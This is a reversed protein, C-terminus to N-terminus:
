ERANLHGQIAHRDDRSIRVVPGSQFTRGPGFPIRFRRRRRIRFRMLSFLEEFVLLTGVILSLVAPAIALLASIMIWRYQTLVAFFEGKIAFKWIPVTEYILRAVGAGVILLAIGFAVAGWEFRRKGDREILDRNFLQLRLVPPLDEATITFRFDKWDATGSLLLKTIFFEGSNLLPFHFEVDGATHSVTVERGDPDIHLISAELVAAGEPIHLTLPKLLGKISREGTNAILFQTETLDQVPTGRYAIKLDDRMRKAGTFLSTSFQLYPTLAKDVSRQFYYKSAWVSGAVGLILSVVAIVVDSM